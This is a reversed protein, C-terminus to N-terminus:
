AGEPHEVQRLSELVRQYERQISSSTHGSRRALEQQSLEGSVLSGLNQLVADEVSGARAQAMRQSLALRVRDLREAQELVEDIQGEPAPPDAPIKLDGLLPEKGRRPFLKRLHKEVQRRGLLLSGDRGVFRGTRSSGRQLTRTRKENVFFWAANVVDDDDAGGGPNQEELQHKVVKRYQELNRPMGLEQAGGILYLIKVKRPDRLRGEEREERLGLTYVIFLTTACAHQRVLGFWDKSEAFGADIDRRVLADAALLLGRTHDRGKNEIAQGSPGSNPLIWREANRALVEMAICRISLDTLEQNELRLQTVLRGVDKPILRFAKVSRRTRVPLPDEYGRGPLVPHPVAVAGEPDYNRVPALAVLAGHAGGRTVSTSEGEPRGAEGGVM